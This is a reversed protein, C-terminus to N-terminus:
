SRFSIARVPQSFTDARILVGVHSSQRACAHLHNYALEERFSIPPV